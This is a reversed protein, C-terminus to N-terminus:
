VCCQDLVVENTWICDFKVLMSKPHGLIVLDFVCDGGGVLFNLFYDTKQFIVSNKNKKRQQEKNSRANTFVENKWTNEGATCKRPGEPM